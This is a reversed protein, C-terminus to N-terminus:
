ASKKADYSLGTESNCEEKLLSAPYVEPKWSQVTGYECRDTNHAAEKWAYTVARLQFKERKGGSGIVRGVKRVRNEWLFFFL